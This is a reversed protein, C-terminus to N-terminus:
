RGRLISLSKWTDTAEDYYQWFRWGNVNNGTVGVAAGSPSNYAQGDCLSRGNVVEAEVLKGMYRTRLKLGHRLVTNKVVMDRADSYKPDVATEDLGFIKRLIDNESESFSSRYKQIYKYVDIDVEINTTEM